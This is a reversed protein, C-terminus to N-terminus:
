ASLSIAKKGHPFFSLFVTEDPAPQLDSWWEIQPKPFLVKARTSGKKDQITWTEEDERYSLPKKKLDSSLLLMESDEMYPRDIGLSIRLITSGLARIRLTYNKRPESFDPKIENSNCQKQFPITLFIDGDVERIDTPLCAKWLREGGDLNVDFDLFDFLQYNTQKM